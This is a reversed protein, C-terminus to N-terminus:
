GTPSKITISPRHSNVAGQGAVRPIKVFDQGLEGDRNESQVAHVSDGICEIGEDDAGV